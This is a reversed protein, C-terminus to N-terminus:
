LFGFRGGDDSFFVTAQIWVLGFQKEVQTLQGSYEKAKQSYQIAAYILSGVTILLALGMFALIVFKFIKLFFIETSNETNMEGSSMEKEGLGLSISIIRFTPDSGADSIM